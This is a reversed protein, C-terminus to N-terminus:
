APIVQFPNVASYEPTKHELKGLDVEIRPLSVGKEALFVRVRRPNPAFNSSYLKMADCAWTVPLHAARRCTLQELPSQELVAQRTLGYNLSQVANYRRTSRERRTKM